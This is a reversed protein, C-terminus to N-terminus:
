MAMSVHETVDGYLAIATTTTKVKDNIFAMAEKPPLPKAFYYGQGFECKLKSLEVLQETTEIGEAIVRMKLNQALRVITNVIEYNEDERGIRAIFSRDIKLYTVPLNHLYSLSSYGTGFDDLCIELGLERLRHLIMVALESNEMIHSETIELKLAHPPLDTEKLTNAIKEALDLQLFEKSSLNVSVTLGSAHPVKRQWEKLQLCAQHTVMEGLKMIFGNEEAVPIFEDPPVLGREPHQWRLLAEFGVLSGSALNMIPQYHVRFQGRELGRRMETEIQLRRSAYKHMAQDFIAYQAKGKSKAFYMAIDADRLMDDASTHGSTSLTIGISTSTFIERGALDFSTKLDNQIREAILLAEGTDDLESLLIVFEDGGLRAVLDGARTCNELRRAIYKLLKDGEAHGLSDNIVKFRDFDLYLVAFPKGKRTRSRDLTLRLHDMFLTRNALGTLGDHFADHLLQEEARKRETIDTFAGISGVVNGDVNTIPAGGVIVWILDGTKKRLRIEYRDSEGKKRRENVANVFEPGEDVLLKAWNTGILEDQSYGTMECIYNNTYTIEDAENVQLLGESMSDVLVRLRTESEKLALQARQHETTDTLLCLVAKRGEFDICTNSIEAEFESGDKKKCAARIFGCEDALCETIASGSSEPRAQGIEDSSLKLFEEKTYGFLALAADNVDVLGFNQTDVVWMAQPSREFLLRYWDNNPRADAAQGACAENLNNKQSKKM